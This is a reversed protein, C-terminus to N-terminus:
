GGTGSVSAGPEAAVEGDVLITGDGSVSVEHDPVHFTLTWDTRESELLRQLADTDVYEDLAFELEHAEVGDADALADVLAIMFERGRSM